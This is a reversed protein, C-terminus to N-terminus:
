SSVRVRLSRIRDDGGRMVDIDYNTSHLSRIRDDGGRVVDIDYNAPTAEVHETKTEAPAKIAQKTLVANAKSLEECRGKYMACEATKNVLTQADALNKDKERTLTANREKLTANERELTACRQELDDAKEKLENAYEKEFDAVLSKGISAAMMDMFNADIAKHAAKM